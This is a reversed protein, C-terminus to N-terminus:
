TWAAAVSLLLLLERTPCQKRVQGLWRSLWSLTVFSSPDRSLMDGCRMYVAGYNQSSTENAGSIHSCSPRSMLTGAANALDRRLAPLAFLYASSDWCCGDHKHLKRCRRAVECSGLDDEANRATVSYSKGFLGGGAPQAGCLHQIAFNHAYCYM